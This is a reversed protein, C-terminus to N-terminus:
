SAQKLDGDRSGITVTTGAAAPRHRGPDAGLGTHRDGSRSARRHRAPPWPSSLRIIHRGLGRSRRDSRRDHSLLSLRPRHRVAGHRGGLRSRCPHRRVHLRSRALRHDRAAGVRLWDPLANVRTALESGIVSSDPRHVRGAVARGGDCPRDAVRAYRTDYAAPRHRAVKCEATTGVAPTSGFQIKPAM